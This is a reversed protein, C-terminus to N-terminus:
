DNELDNRVENLLATIKRSLPTPIKKKVTYAMKPPSLKIKITRFECLLSQNLDTLVAKQQYKLQSALIPQEVIIVIEQQRQLVYLSHQKPDIELFEYVRESLKDINKISEHLYANPLRKAQSM